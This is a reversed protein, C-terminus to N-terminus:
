KLGQKYKSLWLIHSREENMIQSIIERRGVADSIGYYFLLTEKEFAIAFAVAARLDNINQMHVTAKGKGLFFASEVIARMYEAALEWDEPETDGVENKLEEFLKEHLHEKEAMMAFFDRLEKEEKFKEAMDTYYQAGMRETQVAMEIAERISYDAM